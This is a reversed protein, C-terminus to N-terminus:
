QCSGKKVYESFLWTAGAFRPIEVQIWSGNSNNGIIAFAEDQQVSGVVKNDSGTGPSSRVNLVPTTVTACLSTPTPTPQAEQAPPQPTPDEPDKTAVNALQPVLVGKVLVSSPKELYEASPTATAPPPLVESAACATALLVGVALGAARWWARSFEM